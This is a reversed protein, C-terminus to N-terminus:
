ASIRAAFDEVQRPLGNQIAASIAGFALRVLMSKPLVTLTVTIATGDDAPTLKTLITGELDKSAIAIEMLDPRQSRKVLATGPHPRGALVVSFNFSKLSEGTHTVGSINGVGGIGVWTEGRQLSAWAAEIDAGTRASHTFSTM